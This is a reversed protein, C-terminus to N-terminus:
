DVEFTGEFMLQDNVEASGLGLKIASEHDILRYVIKVEFAAISTDQVVYEITRKGLAILRKDNVPKIAKAYHSYLGEDNNFVLGFFADTSEPKALEADNSWVREEDANFAIVQMVITRLPFGTPIPHYAQNEVEVKLVTADEEVYGEAEVIVAMELLEPSHGGDFLHQYVKKKGKSQRASESNQKTPMHCQQCALQKKPKAELLYEKLTDAHCGACIGANKFLELFGTPHLPDDIHKSPGHMEGDCVFSYRKVGIEEPAAIGGISHCLVCTVGENYLREDVALGPQRLAKLPVHCEDCVLTSYNKQQLFTYLKEVLLDQAPVSAHHMSRRWENYIRQHCTGCSKARKLELSHLTHQDLMEAQASTAFALSVSFIVALCVLMEAVIDCYFCSHSTVVRKQPKSDDNSYLPVSFYHM